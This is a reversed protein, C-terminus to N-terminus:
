HEFISAEFTSAQFISPRLAVVHVREVSQLPRHIKEDANKGREASEPSCCAVVHPAAFVFITVGRM